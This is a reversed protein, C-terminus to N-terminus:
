ERKSYSEHNKFLPILLIIVACYAKAKESREGEERRLMLLFLGGFETHASHHLAFHFNRDPM